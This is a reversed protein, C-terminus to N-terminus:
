TLTPNPNLTTFFVNVSVRSTVRVSQFFEVRVHGMRVCASVFVVRVLGNGYVVQLVVSGLSIQCGAM